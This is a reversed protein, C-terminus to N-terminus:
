PLGPRPPPSAPADLVGLGDPPAVDLLGAQALEKWSDAGTLVQAALGAVAQEREALAFDMM